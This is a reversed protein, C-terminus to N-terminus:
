LEAGLTPAVRWDAIDEAVDEVAEKLMRCTSTGWGGGSFPGTARATFSGVREGRHELRGRVSLGKGGSRPGGSAADIKTISLELLPSGADERDRVLM